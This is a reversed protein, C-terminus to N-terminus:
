HLDSSLNRRWNKGTRNTECCWIFTLHVENNEHLRKIWCLTVTTSGLICSVPFTLQQLRCGDKIILKLLSPPGLGGPGKPHVGSDCPWQGRQAVRRFDQSNQCKTIKIIFYLTFMQSLNCRNFIASTKSYQTTRHWFEFLLPGPKM